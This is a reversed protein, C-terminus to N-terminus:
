GQTLRAQHGTVKSIPWAWRIRQILSTLSLQSAKTKSPQDCQSCGRQGLETFFNSLPTLPSSQILLLLLKQSFKKFTQYLHWFFYFLHSSSMVGTLPAHVFVFLPVISLLREKDECQVVMSSMKAETFFFPAATKISHSRPSHFCQPASHPYEPHSPPRKRSGVHWRQLWALDYWLLFSGCPGFPLLMILNLQHKISYHHSDPFHPITFMFLWKENRERFCLTSLQTWTLSLTKNQKAYVSPYM